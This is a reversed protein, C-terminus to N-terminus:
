WQATDFLVKYKLHKRTITIAAPPVELFANVEETSSLFIDKSASNFVRITALYVFAYKFGKERLQRQAEATEARKKQVEASFDQIFSVRKGDIRIDGM